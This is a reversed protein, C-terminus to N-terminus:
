KAAGRIRTSSEARQVSPVPPEPPDNFGCTEQLRCLLLPRTTPTPLHGKSKYWMVTVKLQAVTLQEHSKNLEKIACVKSRLARYERLKKGVQESDKGEQVREREEINDLIDCGVIFQGSAAAHPGASYKQRKSALVAKASAIRKQRIEDCNVRNRSNDCIVVDVISAILSGTFGQTLNLQNLWCM